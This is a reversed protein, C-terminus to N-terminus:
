AMVRKRWIAIGMGMLASMVGILLIAIPRSAPTEGTAPLVNVSILQISASTNAGSSATVFGSQNAIGTLTATVTQGANVTGPNWVLTNSQYNPRYNRIRRVVDTTNLRSAITGSDTSSNTITVGNPLNITITPANTSGATYVLTITFAGDPNVFVSADEFFRLIEVVESNGTIDGTNGGTAPAVPTDDNTITFATSNATTSDGNADGIQANTSPNALTVTLTEDGEVTSDGVIGLADVPIAIQQATVYNGAPITVTASTQSYDNNATTATGDTLTIDITRTTLSVGGSVLLNMGSAITGTNGEAIASTSTDLEIDLMPQCFPDDCVAVKLDRNTSDYYSIVPNGSSNLAIATYLGVSGASDVTTLTRATCTADNCVAVKLNGNTAHYYSIVPNGSSNLAIATYPGVIGASDVTTLTPATCTANNCIAVKLNGNTADFYSIVPNGSSNLAIATYSGVVGASDVTTLTPATCTAAKSVAVKLNGNTAEYYRRVPNRSSNWAIGTDRGVNGASDVTTLTDQALTPFGLLVICLLIATWRVKGLHHM